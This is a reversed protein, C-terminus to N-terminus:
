FPIDDDFEPAQSNSRSSHTSSDSQSNASRSDLMQIENGIIELSHREVDNKDTYKSTHLKGEMYVKSGKKLYTKAIEALKGFTVVKHWETVQIVNGEKDKRSDSTAIRITTVISGGPLDRSEPDMGLNGVLIVKNIGRSAM